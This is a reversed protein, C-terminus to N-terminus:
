YSRSVLSIRTNRPPPYLISDIAVFPNLIISKGCISIKNVYKFFIFNGSVQKNWSVRKQRLDRDYYLGIWQNTSYLLPSTEIHCPDGDRFLKIIQGLVTLFRLSSGAWLFVGTNSDKELLTAPRLGAIKNFLSKLVPTKGFLNSKCQLDISQNKWLSTQMFMKSANCRSFFKCNCKKIASLNSSCILQLVKSAYKGKDCM